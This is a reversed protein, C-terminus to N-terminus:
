MGLREVTDLVLFYRAGPTERSIARLLRRLEKLDYQGPFSQPDQQHAYYLSKTCQQVFLAYLEDSKEIGELPTLDIQVFHFDELNLQGQLEALEDRWSWETKPHEQLYRILTSKGINPTGVLFIASQENMIIRTIDIRRGSVRGIIDESTVEEKRVTPALIVQKSIKSFPNPLTLWDLM